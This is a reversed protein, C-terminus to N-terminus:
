GSAGRRAQFPIAPDQGATACKARGSGINGLAKSAGGASSNWQSGCLASDAARAHRAGRFHDACTCAGAAVRRGPRIRETAGMAGIPGGAQPRYLPSDPARCSPASPSIRNPRHRSNHWRAPCSPRVRGSVGDGGAPRRCLGWVWGLGVVPGSVSSRNSTKPFGSFRFVQM